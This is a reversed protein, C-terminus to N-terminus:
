AGAIAPRKQAFIRRFFARCSQYINAFEYFAQIRTRKSESCHGGDKIDLCWRSSSYLSNEKKYHAISFTKRPFSSYLHFLNCSRNKKRLCASEGLTDTTKGM